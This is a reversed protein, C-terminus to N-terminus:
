PEIPARTTVGAGAWNEPGDSVFTADGTSVDILVFENTSMFGFVQNRWYGIGWIDYEGTSGIITGAGTTEDIRALYDIDSGNKVTAVTGFGAVSVMDGSSTMSGGFAGVQTSLGTLPDIQWLTGSKGTGVLIETGDSQPIFTLGNFQQGSLNSLFTVAATDRDIAFVAGFSIGTIENDYNVAIDTMLEDEFGAPWGFPGILSVELTDPDVKYLRSLSHAYIHGMFPPLPADPWVADIPGLPADPVAERPESGCAAALIGATVVSAAVQRSM